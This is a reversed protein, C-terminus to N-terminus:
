EELDDEDIEDYCSIDSESAEGTCEIENEYNGNNTLDIFGECYAKSAISEAQEESEAEVIYHKSWIETIEVVYKM